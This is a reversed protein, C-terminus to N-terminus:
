TSALANVLRLIDLNLQLTRFPGDIQLEGMHWLIFQLHRDFDRSRCVQIRPHSAPVEEHLAHHSVLIELERTAIQGNLHSTPFVVGVDIERRPESVHVTGLEASGFAPQPIRDTFVAFSFIPKVGM